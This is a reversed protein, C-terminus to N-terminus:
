RIVLRNSTSISNWPRWVSDQWDLMGTARRNDWVPIVM